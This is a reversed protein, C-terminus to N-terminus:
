ASASDRNRWHDQPVIARECIAILDERTYDTKAM